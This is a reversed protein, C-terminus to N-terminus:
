NEGGTIEVCVTATYTGPPTRAPFTLTLRSTLPQPTADGTLTALTPSPILPISADMASAQAPGSGYFASADVSSDLMAASALGADQGSSLMAPDDALAGNPALGCVILPIAGGAVPSLEPRNTSIPAAIVPLLFPPRVTARDPSIRKARIM